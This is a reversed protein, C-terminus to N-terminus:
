RLNKYRFKVLLLGEGMVVEGPQVVVVGEREVIERCLDGRRAKPAVVVVFVISVVLTSRPMM